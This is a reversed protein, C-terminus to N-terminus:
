MKGERTESSTVGGPRGRERRVIRSVTSPHLGVFRGIAALHFGDAHARAIAANRAPRGHASRFTSDLSLPASRESWPVERSAVRAHTAFRGAFATDGLIRQDRPVEDEDPRVAVFRAFASVAIGADAPGFHSLLLRTDLFPPALDADLTGRLSSWPWDDPAQVLRARVPNALVYRCVALFYREEQVIQAGFRGQFVHGVHGHRRNWNQAYRQNLQQIARSVNARLTTLVLHYHTPMLCYAHCVLAHSDVTDALLDLFDLRDDDDLYITMKGNGRAYVHYILGADHIRLQRAM